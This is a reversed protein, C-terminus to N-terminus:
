SASAQLRPRGSTRRILQSALDAGRRPEHRDDSSLDDAPGTQGAGLDVLEVDVGVVAAAADSAQQVPRDFIESASTSHRSQRGDSAERLARKRRKPNM